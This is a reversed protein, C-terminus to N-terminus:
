FDIPYPNPFPGDYIGTRNKSNQHKFKDYMKKAPNDFKRLKSTLIEQYYDHDEILPIGHLTRVWDNIRLSLLIEELEKKGMHETDVIRDEIDDVEESEPYRFLKRM